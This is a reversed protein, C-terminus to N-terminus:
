TFADLHVLRLPSGLRELAAQWRSDNTIVTMHETVLATALIIADPTRLATTARIAAAEHAVAYSVPEVTLNPFSGLFTEVIAAAGSSSARMPRVLAETVTIASLVAPNRGTEVLRDIIGAALESVPESGDLYALIASTDITLGAGPAIAAGVQAWAM